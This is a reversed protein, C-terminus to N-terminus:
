YPMLSNRLARTNKILADLEVVIKRIKAPDMRIEEPMVKRSGKPGDKSEEWEGRTERVLWGHAPHKTWCGHALLNREAYLKASKERISRLLKEDFGIRRVNALKRLLELRQPLRQEVISLRGLAGALPDSAFAITWIMAQVQHEFFAWHVIVRGIERNFSAPLRHESIHDVKEFRTKQMELEGLKEDWRATSAAQRYRRSAGRRM